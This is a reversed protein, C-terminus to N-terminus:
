QVQDGSYRWGRQTLLTEFASGGALERAGPAGPVGYGLVVDPDIKLLIAGQRRSFAQLDDLVHAAAGEAAFLPGKPIYDISLRAAFGRSLVQRKLLMAAAEDWAFPMPQWGYAAKVQAWQWTQLLHAGPLQAVRANWEVAAGAFPKM